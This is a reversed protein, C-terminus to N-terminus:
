TRLVQIYIVAPAVRPIPIFYDSGRIPNLIMYACISGWEPNTSMNQKTWPNCGRNNLNFGKM